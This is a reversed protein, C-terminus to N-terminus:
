TPTPEMGDDSAPPSKKSKAKPIATVSPANGGDSADNDDLSVPVDSMRLDGPAVKKVMTDLTIIDGSRLTLPVDGKTIATITTRVLASPDGATSMPPYYLM